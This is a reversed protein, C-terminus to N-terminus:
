FNKIIKERVRHSWFPSFITGQSLRNVMRMPIRKATTTYLSARWSLTAQTERAGLRGSALGVELSGALTIRLRPLVVVM